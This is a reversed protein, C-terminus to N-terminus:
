RLIGAAATLRQPRPVPKFPPAAAVPGNPPGGQRRRVLENYARNLRPGARPSAATMFERARLALEYYKLRDPPLTTLWHRDAAIQEPTENLVATM